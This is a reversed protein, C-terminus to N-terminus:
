TAADRLDKVLKELGSFKEDLRRLQEKLYDNEKKLDETEIKVKAVETFASQRSFNCKRYVGMMIPIDNKDYYASRSGKISHGMLQERDDDDVDPAQRVIKRFAKRLSHIWMTKPDYGARRICSKLMRLIYPRTVSTGTDTLFLPKDPDGDSHEEECYKRLTAAGEGNLFTYYFDIGLSKLKDDLDKTIKLTILDNKLEDKVHGYKIHEVVNVRVGSQFLFLLTSKNRLSNAMDVIQYVEAKGPIHEYGAKLHDRKFYHKGGRTSDFPLQEGNNNRYFSKLALLVNKGQASHDPLYTQSYNWALDRAKFRDLARWEDPTIKAYESFDRLIRGFMRATNYPRNKLWAEVSPHTKVFQDWSTPNETRQM